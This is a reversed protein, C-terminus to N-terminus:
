DGLGRVRLSEVNFIRAGVVVTTAGVCYGWFWPAIPTTWAIVVSVLVFATYLWVRHWLCLALARSAPSDGAAAPGDRVYRRWEM